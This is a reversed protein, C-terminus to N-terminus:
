TKDKRNSEWLGKLLKSAEIKDALKMDWRVNSRLLDPNTKEQVSLCRYRDPSKANLFKVLNDETEYLPISFEVEFGKPFYINFNKTNLVKVTKREIENGSYLLCRNTIKAFWSPSPAFDKEEWESLMIEYLKDYNLMRKTLVTKYADHWIDYNDTEKTKKFSKPYLKLLIGFFETFNKISM